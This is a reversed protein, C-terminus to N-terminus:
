SSENSSNRQPGAGDGTDPPLSQLVAEITPRLAPVHDRATSYVVGWDVRFYDHVLVHRMGAIKKWPVDPHREKLEKSLRWAAEGIIQVHRLIHSQIPPNSRFTGEDPPLYQRVVEIADLIDQALLRDGRL